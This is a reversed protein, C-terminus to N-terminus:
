RTRKVIRARATEWDEVPEDGRKVALERDLLVEGHWAPAPVGEARRSLDDWLAEMTRLKEELTMDELSIQRDAM